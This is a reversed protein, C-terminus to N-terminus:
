DGPLSSLASAQRLHGGIIAPMKKHRGGAWIPSMVMAALKLVRDGAPTNNAAGPGFEALCASPMVRMVGM